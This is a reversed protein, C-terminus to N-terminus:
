GGQKLRGEDDILALRHPASLSWRWLVLNLDSESAGRAFSRVLLGDYGKEVLTESFVQTPAKGDNLMRDRWTPDALLGANMNLQALADEDRTDFINHFDAEYCVITTPQLSGAQNSERIATLITLSTYLSSVGRPNFRGRYLAAGRGSFPERAFLPNLARYVNGQFRM